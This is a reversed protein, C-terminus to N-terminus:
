KGRLFELGLNSLLYFKKIAILILIVRGGLILEM